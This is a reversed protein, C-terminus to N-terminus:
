PVDEIEYYDIANGNIRELKYEIDYLDKLNEINFTKGREIFQDIKRQNYKYILGQVMKMGPKTNPNYDTM